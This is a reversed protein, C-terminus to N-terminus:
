KSYNKEHCQKYIFKLLVKKESEPIWERLRAAAIPLEWKNIDEIRKGSIKLYERIYIKYIYRQFISVIKRSIWSAQPIEGHKLLLSTRAIDACTDGICATMWDLYIAKEKVMIVNGPHFDFHCLMNGDPLKELYKRITIMENDSLIDVQSLDEKLKDKVSLMGKNPLSIQIDLHYQALNKAYKKMKRLSRTMIKLLDIGIVEEYVIGIRGNVEIIEYVRPVNSLEKQVVCGNLYEREVARKDLGLRFLKLIKGESYKFIEATNGQGIMEMWEIKM